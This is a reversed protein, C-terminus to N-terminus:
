RGARRAQDTIDGIKALYRAYATDVDTVSRNAYKMSARGLKGLPANLQKYVEALEVFNERRQRIGRPLAKDDIWEALVRGDHVYDDKLGLLALLTPRVDTHDSFVADHRGLPQVGPGVM